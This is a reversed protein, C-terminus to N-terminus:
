VAALMCFVFVLDIVGDDKKSEWFINVSFM